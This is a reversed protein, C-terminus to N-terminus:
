FFSKLFFLEERFVKRVNKYSWPSHNEGKLIMYSENKKVIDQIVKIKDREDVYRDFEGYVLHIKGKFDNLCKFFNSKNAEQWFKGNYKQGQEEYYINKVDNIFSKPDPVWLILGLIKNKLFKDYTAIVCATAGMSQGFLVIKYKKKLYKRVLYIITSVWENFSVNKFDGDSNGSNPLDIRLVSYGNETLIKSFDVFSRAPGISSGRFGHIMIILKKNNINSKSFCCFIKKNKIREFFIKNIM